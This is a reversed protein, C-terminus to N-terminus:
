ENHRYSSTSGRLDLKTMPSYGSGAFLTQFMTLHQHVPHIHVSVDHDTRTKVVCYSEMLSPQRWSVLSLRAQASQGLLLYNLHHICFPLSAM